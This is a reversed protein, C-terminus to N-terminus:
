ITEQTHQFTTWFNKPQASGGGSWMGLCQMPSLNEDILWPYEDQVIVNSGDPFIVASSYAHYPSVIPGGIGIPEAGFLFASSSNANTYWLYDSKSKNYDYGGGRGAFAHVSLLEQQFNYYLIYLEAYTELEFAIIGADVDIFLFFPAQSGQFYHVEIVDHASLDHLVYSYSQIEPDRSLTLVKSEDDSVFLISGNRSTQILPVPDVEGRPFLCPAWWGGIGEANYSVLNSTIIQANTDDLDEFGGILSILGTGLNISFYHKVYSGYNGVQIGFWAHLEGNETFSNNVGTLYSVSYDSLTSQDIGVLSLATLSLDDIVINFTKETKNLFAIRCTDYSHNADKDNEVAILATDSGIVVYPYDFHYMDVYPLKTPSFMGNVTCIEEIALSKDGRMIAFTTEGIDGDVLQIWHVLFDRNM